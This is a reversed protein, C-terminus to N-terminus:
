LVMLEYQGKEREDYRRDAALGNSGTPKRAKHTLLIGSLQSNTATRTSRFSRWEAYVYLHRLETVLGAM